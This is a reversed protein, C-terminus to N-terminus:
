NDKWLNIICSDASIINNKEYDKEKLMKILQKNIEYLKEANYRFLECCLILVLVVFWAGLASFNKSFINMIINLCIIAIVFYEVFSWKKIVCVFDKEIELLLTKIKM